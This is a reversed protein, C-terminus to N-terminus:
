LVALLGMFTTAITLLVIVGSLAIRASYLLKESAKLEHVTGGLPIPFLAHKLLALGTRRVVDDCKPPDVLADSQSPLKQSVRSAMFIRAADRRNSAKLVEKATTLYTDVSRPSLGLQQAIEKSSM